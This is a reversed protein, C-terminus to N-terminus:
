FKLLILLAGINTNRMAKQTAVGDTLQWHVVRKIVDLTKSLWNM